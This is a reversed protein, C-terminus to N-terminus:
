TYATSNILTGNKTWNITWNDLDLLCGIIDTNGFTAKGSAVSSNNNRVEGTKIM